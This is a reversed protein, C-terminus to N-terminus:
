EFIGTTTQGINEIKNQFCYDGDDLGEDIKM